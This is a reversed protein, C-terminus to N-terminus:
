HRGLDKDKDKDELRLDKIVVSTDVGFLVGRFKPLFLPLIPMVRPM